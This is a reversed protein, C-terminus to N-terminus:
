SQMTFPYSFFLFHITSFSFRCFISAEIAQTWRYIAGYFLSACFGLAIASFNPSWGIHLLAFLISTIIIACGTGFLKAGFLKELEQQLFGRFFVEEPISVLILNQIIWIGFVSPLKPEFVIIKLYYSIAVLAISMLVLVPLVKKILDWLERRSDILPLLYAMAFLGIFPKDFDLWLNLPYSHKSIILNSAVKWNAFGPLFHLFLSICIFLSSSFLLFRISPLYTNRL